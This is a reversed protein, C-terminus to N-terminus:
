KIKPNNKISEDVYEYDITFRKNKTERVQVIGVLVSSRLRIYKEMGEKFERFEEANALPYNIRVATPLM